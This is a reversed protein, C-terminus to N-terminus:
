VNELNQLGESFIATSSTITQKLPLTIKLCNMGFFRLRKPM